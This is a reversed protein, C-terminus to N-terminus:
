ANKLFEIAELYEELRQQLEASPQEIAPLKIAFVRQSAPKKSAVADIVGHFAAHVSLLQGPEPRNVVGVYIGVDETAEELQQPTQNLSPDAICGINKRDKVGLNDLEAVLNGIRAKMDAGKALVVHVLPLDLAEVLLKEEENQAEVVTVYEGAKANQSAELKELAERAGANQLIFQATCITGIRDEVKKDVLGNASVLARLTPVNRSDDNSLLLDPIHTHQLIAPIAMQPAFTERTSEIGIETEGVFKETEVAFTGNIFEEEDVSPHTAEYSELVAMGKRYEADLMQRVAALRQETSKISERLCVSATVPSLTAVDIGFQERLVRREHQWREGADTVLRHQVQNWSTVGSDAIEKLKNRLGRFAYYRLRANYLRIGREAAQRTTFNKGLGPMGKTGEEPKDESGVFLETDPNAQLAAQIRDRAQIVVDMMDPRHIELDIPNREQAM